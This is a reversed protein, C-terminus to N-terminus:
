EESKSRKRKKFIWQGADDTLLSRVFYVAAVSTSAYFLYDQRLWMRHTHSFFDVWIAWGLLCLCIIAMLLDVGKGSSQIPEFM